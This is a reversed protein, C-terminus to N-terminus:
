RQFELRYRGNREYLRVGDLATGNYYVRGQDNVHFRRSTSNRQWYFFRELLSFKGDDTCPASGALIWTSRTEAM